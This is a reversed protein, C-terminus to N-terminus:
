LIIPTIFTSFYYEKATCAILPNEMNKRQTTVEYKCSCNSNRIKQVPILTFGIGNYHELLRKYLAPITNLLPFQRFDPNPPTVQVFYRGASDIDTKIFEGEPILTVRTEQGQYRGIGM